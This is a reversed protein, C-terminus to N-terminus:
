RDLKWKALFVVARADNKSSLYVFAAWIPTNVALIVLLKKILPTKLMTLGKELKTLTKDVEDGWPDATSKAGMLWRFFLHISFALIGLIALAVVDTQQGAGM